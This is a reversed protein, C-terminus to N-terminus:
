LLQGLFATDSSQHNTDREFLRRLEFGQHAKNWKYWTTDALVETEPYKKRLYTYFAYQFMQNGLGSTFRLIIM